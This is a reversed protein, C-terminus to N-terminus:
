IKEMLGPCIIAMIPLSTMSFLLYFWLSTDIQSKLFYLLYLLPSIVMQLNKRWHLRQITVLKSSTLSVLHFIEDKKHRTM